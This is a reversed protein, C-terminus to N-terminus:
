NESEEIAKMNQRCITVIERLVNRDLNREAAAAVAREMKTDLVGPRATGFADLMACITRVLALYDRHTGTLLRRSVLLRRVAEETRAVVTWLNRTQRSRKAMREARLRVRLPRPDRHRPPGPTRKKKEPQEPRKKSPQPKPGAPAPGTSGPMVDVVDPWGAGCAELYGVITRLTPNPVTGKELKLIYKYGHTPNFGMLRSVEMQSLGAKLRISRLRDGLGALGNLPEHKKRGM